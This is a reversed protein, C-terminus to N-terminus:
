LKDWDKILAKILEEGSEGLGKNSLGLDKRMEKIIDTTNYLLTKTSPKSKNIDNIRYLDQFLKTLSLVVKPSSYMTSKKFFDQLSEALKDELNTADGKSYFASLILDVFDFYIERRNKNVESTLERKKDLFHKIYYGVVAGAITFGFNILTSFEEM